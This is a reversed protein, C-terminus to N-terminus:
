NLVPVVKGKGKSFYKIAVHVSYLHGLIADMLPPHAKSIIISSLNRYLPFKKFVPRTKSTVTLGSYLLYKIVQNM